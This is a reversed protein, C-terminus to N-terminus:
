DETVTLGGSAAFSVTDGTGVTKSTALDGGYLVNGAGYTASDVIYASLITGWSGTATPFTIATGNVTPLPLDYINDAM